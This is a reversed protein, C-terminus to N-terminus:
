ASHDLFVVRNNKFLETFCLGIKITHPIRLFNSVHNKMQGGCRFFTAASGQLICKEDSTLQMMWWATRVPM